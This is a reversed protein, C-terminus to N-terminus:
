SDHQATPAAVPHASRLQSTTVLMFLCAFYLAALGLAVMFLYPNIEGAIRDLLRLKQEFARTDRPPQRRM